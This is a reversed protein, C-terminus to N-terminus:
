STRGLFHTALQLSFLKGTVVHFRSFSDKDGRSPGGRKAKQNFVSNSGHNHDIELADLQQQQADLRLEQDKQDKPEFGLRPKM